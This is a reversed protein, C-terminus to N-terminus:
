GWRLHHELRQYGDLHFHVAFLSNQIKGAEVLEKEISIVMTLQNIKATEVVKLSQNDLHLSSIDELNRRVFGHKSSHAHSPFREM